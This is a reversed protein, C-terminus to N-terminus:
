EGALVQKLTVGPVYQFVAYLLGNESEGSDILRVINPHSLRAALLMERRFREETREDGDAKESLRLIKIAGKQGTSLQRAEYVRGFTGAGIEGLIEYGGQVVSGVALEGDRASM